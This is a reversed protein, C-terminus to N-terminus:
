EKEDLSRSNIIYEIKKLQKLYTHEKAFKIRKEMKEKSNYVKLNDVVEIFKNIYDNPNDVMELLDRKDKYEDTYTSVIVKGSALYEMIKHPSALQEINIQNDARYLLLLIDSNQLINPILNSEVQGYWVINTFERCEQYLRKTKDYRGVQHFIINPYKYIISILTDINLFEIDLNGIYTVNLKDKIFKSSTNELSISNQTSVGHHIKYTNSNYKKIREVIYDTTGFCIDASLSAEKQHYNQNLDVQHYIKLRKEAFEMDYFRSNEFLWITNFKIGIIEELNKLWRKQLYVRVVKPYFRLGKAVKPSSIIKLNDYRSSEIRLETTTPPNLFYISAGQSALTMAYHHKSVFHATWPEPSIILIIKNLLKM